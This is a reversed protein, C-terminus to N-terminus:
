NNCKIIINCARITSQDNKIEVKYTKNFEIGERIKEILNKTEQMDQM